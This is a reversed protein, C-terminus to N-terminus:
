REQCPTFTGVKNISRRCGDISTTKNITAFDISVGKFRDEPIPLPHLLGDLNTSRESNRQCNMCTKVFNRTDQEM